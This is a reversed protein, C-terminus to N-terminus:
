VRKRGKEKSGITDPSLYNKILTARKKTSSSYLIKVYTRIWFFPKRLLDYKTKKDVFFLLETAFYNKSLYIRRRAKTIESIKVLGSWLNQRSVKKEYRHPM